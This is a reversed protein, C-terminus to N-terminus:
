AAGNTVMAIGADNNWHCVLIAPAKIEPAEGNAWRFSSGLNVTVASGLKVVKTWAQGASGNSVTVTGSAVQCDQSTASVTNGTITAEFGALNGRDGSKSVKANVKTDVSSTTAYSGLEAKTAYTSAVTSQLSSLEANTSLTSSGNVTTGDMVHFKKTDTNFVLQGSAGAYDALNASTSQLQQVTVYTNQSADAPLVGYNNYRDSIQSQLEELDSQTAVTDGNLSLTGTFTGNAGSLTGTFTPNAKVLYDTLDALLAVKSKGGQTQGDMIVPRYGKPDDTQIVVQRDRGVFGNNFDEQLAYRTGIDMNTLAIPM